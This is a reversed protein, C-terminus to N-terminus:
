ASLWCISSSPYLSHLLCLVASINLYFLHVLGKVLSSVCPVSPSNCMLQGPVTLDPGLISVCLPIPVGPPSSPTPVSGSRQMSLIPTMTRSTIPATIMQYRQRICTGLHQRWDPTLRDLEYVVRWGTNEDVRVPGFFCRDLERHKSRQNNISEWRVFSDRSECLRRM